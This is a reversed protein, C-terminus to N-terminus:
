QTRANFHVAFHQGVDAPFFNFRVQESVPEDLRHLAFRIRRGVLRASVLYRRGGDLEATLRRELNITQFQQEVTAPMRTTVETVDICRRALRQFRSPSRATKTGVM